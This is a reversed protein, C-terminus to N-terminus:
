HVIRSSGYVREVNLFQNSHNARFHVGIKRISNLSDGSWKLFLAIFFPRGLKLIAGYILEFDVKVVHLAYENRGM